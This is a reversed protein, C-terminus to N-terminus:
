SSFVTAILRGQGKRSGLANLYGNVCETSRARRTEVNELNTTINGARVNPLLVKLTGVGSACVLGNEAKIAEMVFGRSLAHEIWM